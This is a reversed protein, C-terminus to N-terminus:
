WATERRSCNKSSSLNLQCFAANDDISRVINLERCMVNKLWIQNDHQIVSLVDDSVASNLSCRIEYHFDQRVEGFGTVAFEFSCSILRRAHRFIPNDIRELLFNLLQDRLFANVLWQRRTLFQPQRDNFVDGHPKTFDPLRWAVTENHSAGVNM